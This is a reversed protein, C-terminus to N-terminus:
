RSLLNRVITSVLSMDAKGQLTFKLGGMVKGMDQMSSSDTSSIEKSIILELEKESLQKPLFVSLIEIERKEKDALESRDAELFQSAADRRQKIMRQLITNISTDNIEVKTDIEEKKFESIAMRLTTTTEKDRIRMAVKVADQIIVLTKNQAM